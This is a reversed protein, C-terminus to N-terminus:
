DIKTDHEMPDPGDKETVPAEPAPNAPKEQNAKAAAKAAKKAKREEKKKAHRAKLKDFGKGIAPVVWRDIAVGVACGGLFTGVGIAINKGNTSAKIETLASAPQVGTEAIAKDLAEAKELMEDFAKEVVENKINEEMTNKWRELIIIDSKEDM